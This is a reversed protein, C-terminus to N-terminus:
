LHEREIRALREEIRRLAAAHQRREEEIAESDGRTRKSLLAAIIVGTLTPILSLGFLMLGVAVARGAASEPVVDGYGVTTVTVAAWWFALGISKFTSPEVIRELTGAALVLLVAIALITRVAHFLTLREYWRGLRAEADLRV